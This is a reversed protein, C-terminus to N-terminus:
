AARSEDDDLLPRSVISDDAPVTLLDYEDDASRWSLLLANPDVPDPEPPKELIGWVGLGADVCILDGVQLDDVMRPAPSGYGPWRDSGASRRQRTSGAAPLPAANRHAATPGLASTAAFATAASLTPKFRYQPSLPDLDPREEALHVPAELYQNYHFDEDEHPDFPTDFVIRPHSSSAPRLEDLVRKAVPDTLDDPKYPDPTFFNQVEVPDGHDNYAIGRGLLGPPITTGTFYDGWLMDAGQRGLRGLSQRGTLNDRNEGEVYKVDPRQMGIILHIRATRGLRLISGVMEEVPLERPWGKIESAPKSGRLRVYWAAIDKVLETFEDLVLLVPSFDETRAAGSEGAEYRDKMLSWTQYILAIQDEIRTAVCQVNPWDRFGRYEINKRDAINVAWHARAAQTIFTHIASTNHTPIMTPGALFLSNPSDVTICRTPRPVVKEISTIYRHRNREPNSNRTREALTQNKRSLHFVPHTTTFGVTWKPGIDRGYLRARGERTVARYGLSLVLETVGEALVRSTTDYEVGTGSVTGDTDLLGALLERRQRESARLYVAPIHKSTGREKHLVGLSRLQGRLDDIRYSRCKTTADVARPMLAVPYGDQRIRDIIEPDASTIYQCTSTGDGLWAGLTYPAVPLERDPLSLPSAVPVSHNLYGGARLTDRIEDTTRVQGLVRLHRQDRMPQEGHAAVAKCLAARDYVNVPDARRTVAREPVALVVDRVELRSLLHRPLWSRVAVSSLGAAVAIDHVSLEGTDRLRQCVSTITQAHQTFPSGAHSRTARGALYDCVLTSDFIRVNQKQTVTQAKYTFTRLTDIVRIPGLSKAIRHLAATTPAVGALAAVEPITIGDGPKASDAVARLQLLADPSLWPARTRNNQERHQDCHSIRASRDHTFWLHDGDAVIMSGDSFTVEYCNDTLPQDYVGTVQCTNGREDFIRDGIRLAGMTTWGTPSAIPTAVDLAKGSGTPGIILRQPQTKPHWSIPNRDEDYAYFFRTNKYNIIAEAVGAMEPYIRPWVLRPLSPRLEFHVTDHELKFEARWRGSLIQSMVREIQHMRAGSRALKESINHAVDFETIRGRDSLTYDTVTAGSEFMATSAVKARLRQVAAPEETVERTDPTAILRRARRDVSLTYSVGLNESLLSNILRLWEPNAGATEDPNNDGSSPLQLRQLSSQQKVAAAPIYHMRIKTPYIGHANRTEPAVEKFGSATLLGHSPAPWGLPNHLAEVLEAVVAARRAAHHAVIAVIVAAALASVVLFATVFTPFRHPNSLHLWDATATGAAAVWITMAIWPIQTGAWTITLRQAM